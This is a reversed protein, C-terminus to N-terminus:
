KRFHWNKPALGEPDVLLGAKFFSQLKAAVGVPM